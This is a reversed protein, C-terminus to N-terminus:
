TKDHPGWKRLIKLIKYKQDHNGIKKQYKLYKTIKQYQSIFKHLFVSYKLIKIRLMWEQGVCNHKIM